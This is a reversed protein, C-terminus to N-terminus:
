SIPEKRQRSMMTLVEMRVALRATAGAKKKSGYFIIAPFLCAPGVKPCVPTQVRCRKFYRPLSASFPVNSDQYTSNGDCWFGVPRNMKVWSSGCCKIQFM